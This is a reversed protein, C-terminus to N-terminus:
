SILELLKPVREDEEDNYRSDKALWNRTQELTEFIGSDGGAQCDWGTYDCGARLAGFGGGKLEVLLLWDYSDNEGEIALIVKEIQDFRFKSYKMAEQWDYADMLTKLTPKNM